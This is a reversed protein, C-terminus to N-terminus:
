CYLRMSYSGLASACTHSKTLSTQLQKSAVIMVGQIYCVEREMLTCLISRLFHTIVHGTKDTTALFCLTALSGWLSLNVREGM